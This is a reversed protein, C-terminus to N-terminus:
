FKRSHLINQYKKLELFIEGAICTLQLDGDRLVFAKYSVVNGYIDVYKTFICSHMFIEVDIEVCFEFFTSYM